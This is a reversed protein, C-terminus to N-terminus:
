GKRGGRARIAAVIQGARTINQKSDGFMRLYEAFAREAALGVADERVAKVLATILRKIDLPMGGCEEIISDRLLREERLMKM